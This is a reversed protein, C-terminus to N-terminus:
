VRSEKDKARRRQRLPTQTSSEQTHIRPTLSLYPHLCLLRSLRSPLSPNIPKSPSSKPPHPRSRSASSTSRASSARSKSQAPSPTLLSYLLSLPLVYEAPIEREYQKDTGYLMAEFFRLSVVPPPDLPRRDKRVNREQIQPQAHPHPHSPPHPHFGHYPGAARPPPRDHDAYERERDYHDATRTHSNAGGGPAPVAPPVIPPDACKRGLDAKQVEVIEARVTRGAFPGSAFSVYAGISSTSHRRANSLTPSVSSPSASSPPLPPLPLPNAMPSLSLSVYFIYAIGPVLRLRYRITLM